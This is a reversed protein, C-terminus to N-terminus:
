DGKNSCGFESALGAVFGGRVKPFGAAVRNQLEQDYRSKIRVKDDYSLRKGHKSAGRKVPKSVPKIPPVGGNKKAPARDRIREHAAEAAEHQALDRLKQDNAPVVAGTSSLRLLIRVLAGLDADSVTKDASAANIAAGLKEIFGEGNAQALVSAVSTM